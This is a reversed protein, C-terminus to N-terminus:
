GEEKCDISWIMNVTNSVVKDDAVFDTHLGTDKSCIDSALAGFKMPTQFTQVKVTNWAYSIDILDGLKVGSAEALISAKHKADKIAERLADEKYKELDHVFYDVDVVPQIKTLRCLKGLILGLRENDNEFEVKLVHIPDFTVVYEAKNTIGKDVRREFRKVDFSITKIDDHKFGCDASMLVERLIKSSDTIKTVADNYTSCSDKLTILLRTMDQITTVSGEGTVRLTKVNDM